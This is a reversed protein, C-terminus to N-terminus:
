AFYFCLFTPEFSHESLKYSCLGPIQAISQGVLHFRERRWTICVDGFRQLEAVEVLNHMPKSIKWSGGRLLLLKSKMLKVKSEIEWWFGELVSGSNSLM